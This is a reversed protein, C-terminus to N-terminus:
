QDERGAQAGARARLRETNAHGLVALQFSDDRLSVSCVSREPAGRAAAM